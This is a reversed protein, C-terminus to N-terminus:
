DLPLCVALSVRFGYNDDRYSPADQFRTAARCYRAQGSWSGGRVVRFDRSQKTLQIPDSTGKLKDYPGHYDRCWERVNGHMDYLGFTHGVSKPVRARGPPVIQLGRVSSSCSVSPDARTERAGGTAKKLDM